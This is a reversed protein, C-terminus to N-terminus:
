KQGKKLLTYTIIGLSIGTDYVIKFIIFRPEKYKISKLIGNVITFPLCSRLLAFLSGILGLKYKRKGVWKAQNFVDRLNSPNKHYFVAGAVSNAKYGLKDSLSWDDTYGGKSFGDVKEFESKLIARFVKQEEPYNKPHRKREEWGENFNWCRSWVNEWNAVYEEKSFTGKSNKQLIPGALKKLFSKDFTMDADVFVLIDGHAKLAAKNRAMGAGRHNQKLIKLSFNKPKFRKLLKLTKDKSGDDVVLVEFKVGRQQELSEICNIIDKEENYVPIIVSLM